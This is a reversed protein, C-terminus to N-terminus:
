AADDGGAAKLMARWVNASAFDYFGDDGAFNNAEGAAIMAESPEMLAEILAKEAAQALKRAEEMIKGEQRELDRLIGTLRTKNAIEEAHTKQYAIAKLANGAAAEVIAKAVAETRPNTM